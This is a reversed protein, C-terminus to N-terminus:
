QKRFERIGEIGERGAIATMSDPEMRNYRYTPANIKHIIAEVKEAREFFDADDGYEIARFGQLREA